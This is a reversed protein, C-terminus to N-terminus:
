QCLPVKPISGAGLSFVVTSPLHVDTALLVLSGVAVGLRSGVVATRLATSVVIPADM